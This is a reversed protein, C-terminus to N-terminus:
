SRAGSLLATQAGPAAGDPLPPADRRWPMCVALVLWTHGRVPVLACAATPLEPVDVGSLGPAGVVAFRGAEGASGTRDRAAPVDASEAFVWGKPLVDPRAETLVWVDVAAGAIVKAQQQRVRERRGWELNWTAV